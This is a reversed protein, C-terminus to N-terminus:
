INELMRKLTCKLKTFYQNIILALAKQALGRKFSIFLVTNRAHNLRAKIYKQKQISFNGQNDFILWKQDQFVNLCKSIMKWLVDKGLEMKECIQTIEIEAFITEFTKETIKKTLANPNDQRYFFLGESFVVKNANLYFRRTTVEDANVLATKRLSFGHIEWDLSKLFAETGSLEVSRDGNIGVLKSGESGKTYFVMDPIVAEANTEKAREYMKELLDESLLDDQSIYYFFRGTVLPLAFIISQVATGENIKNFVRFRSDLIAMKELINLSEDTSGDNICLVEYNKFSQNQISRLTETLYM